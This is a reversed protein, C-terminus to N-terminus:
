LRRGRATPQIGRKRKTGRRVSRVHRVLSRGIVEGLKVPVANGIFRCLKTFNIKEETGVFVYDEPFTQLMAAERLSIARNQTPHGFRGNGYGHAQTTITPSPKDYEM